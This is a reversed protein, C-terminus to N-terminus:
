AKGTRDRVGATAGGTGRGRLSKLKRAMGSGLSWQPSSPPAYGASAERAAVAAKATEFAAEFSTAKGLGQTFFADPFTSVPTRGDCGFTARDAAADTIVLTFEDALPEIFNGSHCASVVIIRWKIGADDLLQKLGTPGLDVLSLPPQDAQLGGDRVTPAALYLMVVDEEPDILAGIEDLVERLHTVTAFPATVLTRPNNMLLVSRERTGWRSDMASQAAELGQRFADDRGSPAFGVFYLDTESERADALGDLANELLYSQAALVAESGAHLGTPPALAADGDAGAGRWWPESEYIADGFWIPTAILLGGLIARLWLYSPPPSFALAVSRILLLLIWLLFFYELSAGWASWADGQVLILCAYHLVQVIPLAAMVLVVIALTAQRQRVSIAIIVAGLLLLAASYLEAGAGAPVFVRPPAVRLYDGAVDILASLVFLLVAQVLDIRFALRSVPLLCALRIGARLNRSLNALAHGM